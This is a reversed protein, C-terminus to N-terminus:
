VMNGRIDDMLDFLSLDTIRIQNKGELIDAMKKSKKRSFDDAYQDNGYASLIIRKSFDIFSEQTTKTYIPREFTKIM